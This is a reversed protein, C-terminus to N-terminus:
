IEEEVFVSKAVIVDTYNNHNINKSIGEESVFNTNSENRTLGEENTFNSRDSNSGSKINTQRRREDSNM